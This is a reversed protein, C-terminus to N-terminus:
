RVRISCLICCCLLHWLVREWCRLSVDGAPTTRDGCVWHLGNRLVGHSAFRTYNGNFGYCTWDIVPGRAMGHGCIADLYHDGTAAFITHTGGGATFAQYFEGFDSLEDLLVDFGRQKPGA